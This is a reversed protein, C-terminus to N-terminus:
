QNTKLYPSQDFLAQAQSGANSPNFVGAGRVLGNWIGRIKNTTAAEKLDLLDVSAAGETIQYVAYTQPFYYSSGQYGWYYPDYYSGYGGWYDPYSMIGNYTNYIRSVNVGVDPNQDRSVKTFGRSVMQAAIAEVFAADWTTLERGALQGNDIVSVSDAISFTKLSTFDISSDHDTIYIRSEENTLNKLPEKTCSALSGLGAALVLVQISRNM